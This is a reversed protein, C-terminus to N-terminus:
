KKDYLNKKKAKRKGNVYDLIFFCILRMDTEDLRKLNSEIIVKATDRTM